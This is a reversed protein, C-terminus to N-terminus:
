SPQVPYDPRGVSDCSWMQLTMKELARLQMNRYNLDLIDESSGRVLLKTGPTVRQLRFPLVCYSIKLCPHQARSLFTPVTGM